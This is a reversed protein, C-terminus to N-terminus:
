LLVLFLTQLEEVEPEAPMPEELQVRRRMEEEVVAELMLAPLALAATAGRIERVQLVARVAEEAELGAM